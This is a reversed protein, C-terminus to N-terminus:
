FGVAKPAAFIVPTDIPEAYVTQVLLSDRGSAYDVQIIDRDGRTRVEKIGPRSKSWSLGDFVDFAQGRWRLDATPTKGEL